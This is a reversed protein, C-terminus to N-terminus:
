LLTNRLNGRDVRLFNQTSNSRLKQPLPQNCETASNWKGSALGNFYEAVQGELKITVAEEVLKGLIHIPYLSHFDYEERM